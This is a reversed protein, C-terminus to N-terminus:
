NSQTNQQNGLACHDISLWSHFSLDQGLAAIHPCVNLLWLSEVVIM